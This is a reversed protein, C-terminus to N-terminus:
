CTHILSNLIEFTHSQIWAKKRKKKKEQENPFSEEKNEM